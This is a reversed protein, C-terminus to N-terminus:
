IQCFKTYATCLIVPRMEKPILTGTESGSEAEKQTGQRMTPTLLKKKPMHAWYTVNKNWYPVTKPLTGPNPERFAM